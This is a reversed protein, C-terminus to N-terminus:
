MNVSLPLLRRVFSFFSFLNTSRTLLGYFAHMACLNRVLFPCLLDVLPSQWKLLPHIVSLFFIYRIHLLCFMGQVIVSRVQGTLHRITYREDASDFNQSM